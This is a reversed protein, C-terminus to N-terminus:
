FTPATDMLCDALAINGGSAGALVISGDAQEGISYSEDNSNTTTGGFDVDFDGGSGFGGTPSGSTDFVETVFDDNGTTGAIILEGNTAGGSTYVLAATPTFFSCSQAVGSCGYSTDLAGNSSVEYAEVATYPTCYPGNATGGVALILETGSDDWAVLTTLTDVSANSCCTCYGGVVNYRSVGSSAFSTDLDGSGANFAAITFDSSGGTGCGSGNACYNTYGGVYVDSYDTSPQVISTVVVGQDLFSPAVPTATWDVGGGTDVEAAMLKTGSTDSGGVLFYNSTYYCVATAASGTGTASSFAATGEIAGGVDYGLKGDDYLPNEAENIMEVLWGNPCTGVVCVYGDGVAIGYVTDNGSDNTQFYFIGNGGSGHASDGWSDDIEGQDNFKAVAIVNYSGGGPNYDFAVYENYDNNPDVATFDQGITDGSVNFTSRGSNQFQYSGYSQSLAFSATATTGSGSLTAVAAIAATPGDPSTYSHGVSFTTPFTGSYTSANITELPSGDQWNVVWKSAAGGDTYLNVYYTSAFSGTGSASMYADFTTLYVRGEVAEAVARSIAARAKTRKAPTKSAEHLRAGRRVAASFWGPLFGM